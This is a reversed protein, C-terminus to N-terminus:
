SDIVVVIYCGKQKWEESSARFLAYSSKVGSLVTLIMLSKFSPFFGSFNPGCDVLNFQSGM